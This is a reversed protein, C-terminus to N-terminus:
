LLQRAEPQDSESRLKWMCLRLPLSLEPKTLKTKVIVLSASTSVSTFSALTLGHRSWVWDRLCPM